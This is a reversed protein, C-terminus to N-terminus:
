GCNENQIEFARAAIQEAKEVSDYFFFRQILISAGVKLYIESVASVV